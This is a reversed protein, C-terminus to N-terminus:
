FKMKLSFIISHIFSPKQFHESYYNPDDVYTYIMRTTNYSLGFKMEQIRRFKNFLSYEIAANKLIFYDTDTIYDIDDIYEFIPKGNNEIGAIQRNQWLPYPPSASINNRYYIFDFGQKSELAIHFSINKYIFNSGAILLENNISTNETYIYRNDDENILKVNNKSYSAFIDWNFNPNDVILFSSTAEYGTKNLSEINEFVISYNIFRFITYDTYKKSYYTLGVDLKNRFVSSALSIEFNNNPFNQIWDPANHTEFQEVTYNKLKSYSTKLKLNNFIGQKNNIINITSALVHNDYSEKEDREFDYVDFDGPVSDPSHSFAHYNTAFYDFDFNTKNMLYELTFYKNFIKASLYAKSEKSTIEPEKTYYSYYDTTSRQSEVSFNSQNDINNISYGLSLATKFYKSVKPNLRIGIDSYITNVSYGKDYLKNITDYETVSLLERKLKENQNNLSIDGYIEAWNFIKSDVKVYSFIRNSKFNNNGTRKFDSFNSFDVFGTINTNSFPKYKVKINGSFRKLGNNPRFEEHFGNSLSLRYAFKNYAKKIKLNTITSFGTQSIDQFNLSTFNSFSYEGHSYGLKIEETQLGVAGNHIGSVIKSNHAITNINIKAIDSPLLHPNGLYEIYPLKNLITPDVPIGDITILPNDQSRIFYFASGTLPSNNLTEYSKNKIILENSPISDLNDNNKLTDARQGYSQTFFFSIFIIILQKHM